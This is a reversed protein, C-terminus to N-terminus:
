QPQVEKEFVNCFYIKKTDIEGDGVIKKIKGLHSKNSPSLLQTATYKINGNKTPVVTFVIDIARLTSIRNYENLGGIASLVESNVFDSPTDSTSFLVVGSQKKMYGITSAIDTPVFVITNDPEIKQAISYVTKLSPKSSNERFAVNNETRIPENITVCFRNHYFDTVVKFLTATAFNSLVVVNKGKTLFEFLISIFEEDIFFDTEIKSALITTVPSIPDATMEVKCGNNLVAEYFGDAVFDNTFASLIGKEIVEDFIEENEEGCFNASYIKGDVILVKDIEYMTFLSEIKSHFKECILDKDNAPTSASQPYTNESEAYAASPLVPEVPFTETQYEQRVTDEVRFPQAQQPAIPNSQQVPESYYPLVPTAPFTENNQFEPVPNPMDSYPMVPPVQYPVGQPPQEYANNGVNFEPQVSHQSEITNKAQQGEDGDANYQISRPVQRNPNRRSTSAVAGYTGRDVGSQRFPANPQSGDANNNRKIRDHLDM